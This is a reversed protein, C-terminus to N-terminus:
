PHHGSGNGSSSEVRGDQNLQPIHRRLCQFFFGRCFTHRRLPSRGPVRKPQCGDLDIAVRLVRLGPGTQSQNFIWAPRNGQSHGEMGLIDQAEIGAPQGDPMPIHASLDPDIQRGRDIKLALLGASLGCFQTFEAEMGRQEARGVRVLRVIM